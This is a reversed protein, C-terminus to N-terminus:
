EGSGKVTDCSPTCVSKEVICSRDVTTSADDGEDRCKGTDKDEDNAEEDDSEEDTNSAVTIGVLEADDNDGVTDSDSDDDDDDDNDDNDNGDIGEIGEDGTCGDDGPIHECGTKEKWRSSNAEADTKNM